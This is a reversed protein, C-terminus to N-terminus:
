HAILVRIVEIKDNQLTRLLYIGSPVDSFDLIVQQATETFTVNVLAGSSSFVSILVDKVPENYQIYLLAKTPNPFVQLESIPEEPFGVISEDYAFLENGYDSDAAVVYTIGNNYFFQQITRDVENTLKRTSTENGTTKWLQFSNEGDDALFLVMNDTAFFNHPYSSNIATSNEGTFDPKINKIMSTGPTTGDTKWIEGHFEFDGAEYIFISKFQVGSSINSITPSPKLVVTGSESGDSKWLESGVASMVELICIGNVERLHNIRSFEKILATGNATGDSIGLHSSTLNHLLSFYLKNNIKILEVDGSSPFTYYSNTGSATGDSKWLKEADAFYLQDELIQISSTVPRDLTKVLVTGATTGDTRWLQTAVGFNPLPETSIFFVFNNYFVHGYSGGSPKIPVTSEPTGSSFWVADHTANLNANFILKNNFAFLSNPYEGSGNFLNNKLRITGEPTGNTVWPFRNSTHEVQNYTDATFYVLTGDATFNTPDSGLVGINIDKVLSTTGNEKGDSVWLERGVIDDYVVFFLKSETPIIQFIESPDGWNKILETGNILSIGNNKYISNFAVYYLSDKFSTLKYISPYNFEPQIDTVLKTKNNTFDLKWIRNDSTYSWACFFLTDRCLTMEAPFNYDATPHNSTIMTTGLSTGDTRWLKTGNTGDTASFFLQNKFSYLNSIADDSDPNIDKVISTGTSTGDSKWLVSGQEDNKVVFYLTGDMGLLQSFTSGASGPTIDKVLTTGATTGNSMWLEKGHEGDDAVFYLVGNADTMKEINVMYENEFSKIFHTGAETGNSKWLSWAGGPVYASFYVNEGAAAIHGVETFDQKVIYTGNNNGDSRWLAAGAQGPCWFYLINGAQVLTDIVSYGAYVINKVLKTGLLTGDSKWLEQGHVGDDALFYLIGDMYQFTNPYSSLVPGEATESNLDKILRLQSYAVVQISIFAIVLVFDKSSM